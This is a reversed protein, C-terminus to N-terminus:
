AKKYILYCGFVVPFIGLIQYITPVDRFFIYSFLLTFFPIILFSSTAVHLPLMTSWKVYLLKWVWLIFFWNIFLVLFVNLNFGWDVNMWTLLSLFFLFITAILTRNFMLFNSSYRKAARKQFFQGFPAILWIILLLVDWPNLHFSGQFLVFMVWVFMLFAWLVQNRKVWWESKFITHSYFFMTFIEFLGIIAANNPTTHQLAFFFLTYAIVWIIIWTYVVDSFGKLDKYLEWEKRKVLVIFFFLLAFLNVLFLAFIPSIHEISLKTMIWLLSALIWSVFLM